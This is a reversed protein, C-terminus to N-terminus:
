PALTGITASLPIRTDPDFFYSLSLRADPLLAYGKSTVVTLETGEVNMSAYGLPVDGAWIIPAMARPRFERGTITVRFVQTARNSRLRQEPDDYFQRTDQPEDLSALAGPPMRVREIRFGTPTGEPVTTRPTAAMAGPPPAEGRSAVVAGPAALLDNVSLTQAGAAGAAVSLVIGTMGCWRYGHREALM